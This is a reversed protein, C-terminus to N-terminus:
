RDILVKEIFAKTTKLILCADADSGIWRSLILQGDDGYLSIATAGGGLIEKELTLKM